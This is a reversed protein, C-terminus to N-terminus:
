HSRHWHAATPPRFAHPYRQTAGPHLGVKRLLVVVRTKSNQVQILEIQLGRNPVIQIVIMLPDLSSLLDQFIMRIQQRATKLVSAGRRRQGACM